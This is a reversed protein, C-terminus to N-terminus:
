YRCVLNDYRVIWTSGTPGSQIAPEFARVGALGGDGLLIDVATNPAAVLVETSADSGAGRVELSLHFWTDIPVSGLARSALLKGAAYVNFGAVVLPPSTSSRSLVLAIYEANRNMNFDALYVGDDGAKMVRLDFDCRINAREGGLDHQVGVSAAGDPAEPLTLELAYPPSLGAGLGLSADLRPGVLTLKSGLEFTYGDPREDFSWCFSANVTSCFSADDITADKADAPTLADSGGEFGADPPSPAPDSEFSSCAAALAMALASGLALIRLRV